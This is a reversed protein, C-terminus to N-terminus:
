LGSERGHAAHSIVLRTSLGGAPSARGCDMSAKPSRNGKVFDAAREAMMIIPGNLNGSPIFPITSSDIVRLGDLGRVRFQPDVVAMDDTGMRCAGCPHLAGQATERVFAECEARTKLPAKPRSIARVYKKLMRNSMIEQGVQVGETLCDVDHQESIYRPDLIPPADPNASRLTMRGRSKPRM